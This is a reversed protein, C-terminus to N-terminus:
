RCPSAPSWTRSRKPSAPRRAESRGSPIASARLRRAAASSRRAALPRSPNAGLHRVPAAGDLLPERRGPERRQRAGRPQLDVEVGEEGVERGDAARDRGAGGDPGDDLGVRVPVPGDRHRPRQLIGAHVAQADRGEVLGDLQAVRADLRRDRDQVRDRGTQDGGRGIEAHRHAGPSGTSRARISSPTAASAPWGSRAISSSISLPSPRSPNSPASRSAAAVAIRDARPTRSAPRHVCRWAGSSRGRVSRCIARNSAAAAARRSAPM